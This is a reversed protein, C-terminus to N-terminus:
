PDTRWECATFSRSMVKLDTDSAFFNHPRKVV